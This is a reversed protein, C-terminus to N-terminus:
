GQIATASRWADLETTEDGQLGLDDPLFPAYDHNWPMGEVADTYVTSLPGGQTRFLCVCGSLNSFPGHWVDEPRWFYAGPNMIGLPSHMQGSVLFMEEVM